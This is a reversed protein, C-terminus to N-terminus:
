AKTEKERNSRFKLIPPGGNSLSAGPVTGGNRLVRKIAERDPRPPPEEMMSVPILTEDTIVLRAPADSLHWTGGEVRVGPMGTEDMVDRLTDALAQRAAEAERIVAEIHRITDAVCRAAGILDACSAAFDAAHAAARVHIWPNFTTLPRAAEALREAYHKPTTM